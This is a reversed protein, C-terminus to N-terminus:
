PTGGQEFTQPAIPGPSKACKPRSRSSCSGSPSMRRSSRRPPAPMPAVRLASRPAPRSEKNVPSASLSPNSGETGKRPHRNELRPGAGERFERARLCLSEGIPANAGSGIFEPLYLRLSCSPRWMVFVARDDRQAGARRRARVQGDVDRGPVVVHRHKDRDVVRGGFHQAAMGGPAGPAVLRWLRQALPRPRAQPPDGLLGSAPWLCRVPATAAKAPRDAAVGHQTRGLSVKLNRAGCFLLAGRRPGASTM